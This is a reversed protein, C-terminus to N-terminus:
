RERIRDHHLYWARTHPAASPMGMLHAGLRPLDEPRDVDFLTELERMTFGFESLRRRVAVTTGASSWPLNSFLGAPCRRLGLLYFGGDECPGIAADHTQLAAVAQELHSATIVPTDAGLAIAGPGDELARQLIRELRAGLDGEGQLWIEEPQVAVPFEGYETTALVAKVGPCSAVVQWVDCLMARALAAAAENGLEPSLRTKM